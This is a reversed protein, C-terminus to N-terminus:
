SKKYHLSMKQYNKSICKLMIIDIFSKVNIKKFSTNFLNWSYMKKFHWFPLPRFPYTHSKNVHIGVSYCLRNGM